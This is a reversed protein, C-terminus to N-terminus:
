SVGRCRGAYRLRSGASRRRVWASSGTRSRLWTGLGGGILLAFLLVLANQTGIALQVGLVLTVLGIGVTASRTITEPIKKGAFLGVLSGLLIAGVNIWTGLM